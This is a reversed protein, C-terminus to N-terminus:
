KIVSIKRTIVQNGITLKLIYMGNPLDNNGVRINNQGAAFERQNIAYVTKGM